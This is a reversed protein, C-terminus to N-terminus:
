KQAVEISNEVPSYWKINGGATCLPELRKVNKIVRTKQTKEKVTAMRTLTFNYRMTTKIQM